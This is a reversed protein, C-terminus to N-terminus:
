NNTKEENLKLQYDQPTTTGSAVRVAVEVLERHITDNLECDVAATTTGDFGNFPVIDVPQAFYTLHYTTITFVGDTILNVRGYSTYTPTLVGAVAKDQVLYPYFDMRWVCDYDTGALIPKEHPNKIQLSYEDETAPRVMIRRGNYCTTTSGITVEESEHYMFDLPLDYRTSNPKSIDQTSSASSINVSKTMNSMDQRRREKYEAPQYRKVLIEQAKSLFVSKEKDTYGPSSLSAIKDYLIDFEYSMENATM